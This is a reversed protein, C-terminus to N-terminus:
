PIPCKRQLPPAEQYIAGGRAARNRHLYTYSVDLTSGNAYIAGGYGTANSDSDAVNGYFSSCQKTLPDCDTSLVIQSELPELGAARESTQAVTVYNAYIRVTSSAYAAIAGGNGTAKNNYFVCNDSDLTSNNMYIAGGSGATTYNGSSTYGFSAGDCDISSNSL